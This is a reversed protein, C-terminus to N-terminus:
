QFPNGGNAIFMGMKFSLYLIYAFGAYLVTKALIRLYVM